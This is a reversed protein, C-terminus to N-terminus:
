APWHIRMSIIHTCAHWNVGCPVVAFTIKEGVAVATGPSIANCDVYVPSKGTRSMAAAVDDALGLAASPPLISLIIDAEAVAADLDGADRVQGEDALARSRESRGSLSTITEYGHQRLVLGVGHGMDGPMLIAITKVTM